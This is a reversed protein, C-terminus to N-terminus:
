SITFNNEFFELMHSWLGGVNCVSPCVSLCVSQVVHSRLVASQVLTCRATFVLGPHSLRFLHLKLRKRFTLISLASTVDAPIDNMHSRRRCPLRSTWLLCDSLLFMYITPHLLGCDKDLRSTPSRHSSGYLYQPADGHLASLDTRRDQFYDKRASVALLPQRTCGSRCLRFVLANQVSQLRHVLYAPLGVLTGNGYDLRCLVLAAVLSQFVTASVLHRISSLQHLAPFCSLLEVGDSVRSHADGPPRPRRLHGPRTRLVGSRRDIFLHM